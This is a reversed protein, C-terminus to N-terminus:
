AAATPLTRHHAAEPRHDDALVPSGLAEPGLATALRALVTELAADGSPGDGLVGQQGHDPCVSDVTLVLTAVPGELRVSELRNRVLDLLLKPDTTPRALALPVPHPGAPDVVLTLTLRVAAQQRGRLRSSVRDLLGKLAFLLPELSEVPSDLTRVEEVVEPLVEPVLRADDEGRALRQARLGAAGLRAILQAPALAALEGLTTLGLCAPQGRGGACGGTGAAALM